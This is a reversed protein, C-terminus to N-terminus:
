AQAEDTAEYTVGNCIHPMSPLDYGRSRRFGANGEASWLRRGCGACHPFTPWPAAKIKIDSCRTMQLWRAPEPTTTSEM